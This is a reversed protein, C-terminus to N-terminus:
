SYKIRERVKELIKGLHNDGVGNCVGWYTDKWYNGEILKKNNTNILKDKLEDSQSFKEYVLQEMISLHLKEWLDSHTTQRRGRAKAQSPLLYKWEDYMADSIYIRDSSMSSSQLPLSSSSVIITKVLQYPIEVHTWIRNNWIFPAYYYNSLFVYKGRFERIEGRRNDDVTIEQKKTTTPKAVDTYVIKPPSKVLLHFNENVDGSGGVTWDDVYSILLELTINPDNLKKVLYPLLFTKISDLINTEIHTTLKFIDKIEFFKTSLFQHKYDDDNTSKLPKQVFKTM